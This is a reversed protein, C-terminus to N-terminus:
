EDGIEIRYARFRSFGFHKTEIVFRPFLDPPARAPTEAGQVNAPASPRRKLYAEPIRAADQTEHFLSGIKWDGV